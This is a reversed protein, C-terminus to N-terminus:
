KKKPKCTSCWVTHPYHSDRPYYHAISGTQPGHSAGQDMWAYSRTTPFFVVYNYYNDKISIENTTVLGNRDPRPPSSTWHGQIAFVFNECCDGCKRGIALTRKLYCQTGPASEPYLFGMGQYAAVLGICGRDLDQKVKAPVNGNPYMLKELANRDPDIRERRGADLIAPEQLGLPDVGTTPRNGVYVYENLGGALGIPDENIFRGVQPDYFRARYHMLGTDPDLERGTYTYRTFASAPGNGFSDYSLLEIVNGADDSLGATSGLHDTLYYSVGTTSNTKRLHHDIGLDNFYTAAVSWDSNLDVLVDQGDYIYREDAGTNTTRQIRRGLADYTYDVIVRNPLSVEILQNEEDWTFTTTGQTDTKTILNGNNDYDYIAKGAGTLKNFPQYSYNKTFHSSTRNGVGDYEYDENPQTSNKAATLRDLLDYTFAHNGMTDTWDSITNADNYQYQNNVLTDLDKSHVLSALRDLGDYAYSTLVGNPASRTRLRNVADYTHPFNQNASDKLGTLRNAADYTYTAYTANNLDMRTRNGAGDYNYTVGSNFQDAVTSVRYRNDYSIYVSGSDNTASTIQNALNYTYTMSRTPYNITTLRNINDYSYTTLAGNYDIRQACNGVEDYGYSMSLAGRSIQTMRGLADYSFQYNQNLADLVGTVRSLADYEFSTTQNIADKARTLNGTTASYTFTSTNGRPDTATLLQGFADYTLTSTHHLADESTLLNGSGDYTNNTLNGLKDLGNLVDGFQNYTYNATGLAETESLRNGNADYTYSTVHGLADTKSTVNLQADYTWSRVQAGGGGGGCGCDGEVQTVVNRGKSTDFTYKTLHGLSL